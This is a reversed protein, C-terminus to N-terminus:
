ELFVAELPHPLIYSYNKFLCWQEPGAHMYKLQFLLSTGSGRHDVLIFGQLLKQPSKTRLWIITVM